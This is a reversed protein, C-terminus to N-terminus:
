LRKMSGTDEDFPPPAYPNLTPPPNYSPAQTPPPAYPAQPPYPAVPAMSRTSLRADEPSITTARNTDYYAPYTGTYTINYPQHQPKRLFLTSLIWGFILMVFVVTAGGIAAVAIRELQALTFGTERTAPGPPSASIIQAGVDVVSPASGQTVSVVFLPSTTTQFAASAVRITYQGDTLGGFCLIGQAARPSDDLLGTQVILGNIDTLTAGIDRTIFPEDPDYVGNANRDEFARLCAQGGLTQALVNGLTLTVGLLAVIWRSM